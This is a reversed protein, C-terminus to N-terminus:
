APRSAKFTILWYIYLTLGIWFASFGYAIWHAVQTDMKLLMPVALAFWLLLLNVYLTTAITAALSKM